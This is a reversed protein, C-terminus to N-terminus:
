PKRLHPLLISLSTEPLNSKKLSIDGSLKGFSTVELRM